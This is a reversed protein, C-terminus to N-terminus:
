KKELLYVVKNKLELIGDALNYLESDSERDFLEGFFEILAEDVIDFFEPLAVDIDYVMISAENFKLKDTGHKGAIAEILTDMQDIFEDFFLGFHRHEADSMTQFHIVKAQIAIQFLSIMFDAITLESSTGVEPTEGRVPDDTENPLTEVPFNAM